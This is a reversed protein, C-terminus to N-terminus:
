NVPSLILFEPPSVELDVLIDGRDNVDVADSDVHIAGLDMFDELNVLGTEASAMFPIFFNIGDRNRGRATGVVQSHENVDGISFNDVFRVGAPMIRRFDDSQAIVRVKSRPKTTDYVFIGDWGQPFIHLLGGVVGTESITLAESSLFKRTPIDVLGDEPTFVFAQPRNDDRRYIGSVQASDNVGTVVSVQSPPDGVQILKGDTWLFARQVGGAQSTRFVIDGRNNLELLAADSVRPDIPSLDRWGEERTYIIPTGLLRGVVDGNDNMDSVRFERKIRDGKGPELFDFGEGPTHIFVDQQEGQELVVGYVQGRENMRLALSSEAGPPHLLEIEGGLTYRIARTGSGGDFSRVSAVLQGANNIGVDALAHEFAHFTFGDPTELTPLPTVAYRLPQAPGAAAFSLGIFITALITETKRM